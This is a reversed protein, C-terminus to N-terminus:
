KATRAEPPTTIWWILGFPDQFGGTRGYPKDSMDMITTAGPALVRAALADADEVYLFM